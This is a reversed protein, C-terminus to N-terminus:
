KRREGRLDWEAGCRPCRGAEPVVLQNVFASCSPCRSRKWFWRFGWIAIAGDVVVLLLFTGAFVALSQQESRGVSARWCAFAVLIAIAVVANLAVLAIMMRKGRERIERLGTM